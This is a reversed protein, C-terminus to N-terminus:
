QKKNLKFVICEFILLQLFMLVLFMWASEYYFVENCFVVLDLLATTWLIRLCGKNRFFILVLVPVVILKICNILMILTLDM